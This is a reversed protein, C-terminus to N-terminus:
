PNTKEKAASPAETPSAGRDTSNSGGPVGGGRGGRSRRGGGGQDSSADSRGTQGDAGGRNGRGSMGGPAGGGFGGRGMRGGGPFQSGTAADGGASPGGRGQRGGWPSGQVGSAGPFASRGNDAGNASAVVTDGPSQKTNARVYSLYEDVTLLGDDNRDMARFEEVSKGAKVWSSLWIQGDKYTDLEAFWPPLEKPLKGYRYVTPRKDEEQVAAAEEVPPLGEAAAPQGNPTTGQAAANEQMRVQVRDRYYAKYEELNIMGDKNSDYTTLSSKLADPMEAFQLQGDGDKDHKRFSDEAQRDIQEPTTDSGRGPPAAGLTGPTPPTGGPVGRSAARQARFTEMGATFQERTIQGNTIGNALAMGSIMGKMRDDLQDIIIVDKGNALRDFFQSPDRGGGGRGGKGGGTPGPQQSNVALPIALLAACCAAFLLKRKM